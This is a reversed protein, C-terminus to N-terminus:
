RTVFNALNVQFQPLQQAAPLWAEVASCLDECFIRVDINLADNLINNHAIMGGAGPEIFIIRSYRGQPHQTRGQHLM